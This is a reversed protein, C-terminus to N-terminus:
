QFTLALFPISIDLDLEIFKTDINSNGACSESYFMIKESLCNLYAFM